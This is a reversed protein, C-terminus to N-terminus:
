SEEVTIGRVPRSAAVTTPQRQRRYLAELRDARAAALHHEFGQADPPRRKEEESLAALRDEERIEDCFAGQGPFSHAWPAWM